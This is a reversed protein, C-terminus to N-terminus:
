YARGYSLYLTEGEEVNKLISIAILDYLNLESRIVASLM